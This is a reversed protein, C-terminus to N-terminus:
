ALLTMFGEIKASQPDDRAQIDQWMAKHKFIWLPSRLEMRGDLDNESTFEEALTRNM